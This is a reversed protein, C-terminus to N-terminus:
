KSLLVIFILFSTLLFSSARLLCLCLTLVQLLCVPQKLVDVSSTWFLDVSQTFFFGVVQSVSFDSLGLMQALPVILLCCGWFWFSHGFSSISCIRLELPYLRFVDFPLFFCRFLLNHSAYFETFVKKCMDSPLATGFATSLSISWYPFILPLNVTPSSSRPPRGLRPSETIRDSTSSSAILHLFCSIVWV